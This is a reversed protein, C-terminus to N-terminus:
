SLKAGSLLAQLEDRQVVEKELLRRALQEPLSRKEALLASVTVRAAGGRLSPWPLFAAIIGLVGLRAPTLCPAM